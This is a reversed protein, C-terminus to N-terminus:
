KRKTAPTKQTTAASAKGTAPKHHKCNPDDCCKGASHLEAAMEDFSADANFKGVLLGPPALMVTAIGEKNAADIELEKLFDAEAPDNTDLTVTTVRDKFEPNTEFDQVASPASTDSSSQVCILVIKDSQMAKMCRTMTPTAFAKAIEQTSPTKRFLGTAAGNPAMAVCLPMPARRVGLKDVLRKEAPATIQAKAVQADGGKAAIGKQVAQVMARTAADDAKFFVIFTFRGQQASEELVQEVPSAASPASQQALALSSSCLCLAAFWAHSLASTPFRM